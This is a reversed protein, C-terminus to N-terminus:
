SRVKVGIGLKRLQEENDDFASRARRIFRGMWKDLQRMAERRNQSAVISKGELHQQVQMAEVLDKLQERRITFRELDIYQGELALMVDPYQVVEDYFHVMQRVLANRRDRMRLHLRMKVYLARNDRLATRVLRRDDGFYRRIEDYLAKVRATAAVKAGLRVEQETELESAADILQRVVAFQEEKYGVTQLAEALEPDAQVIAIAGEATALREPTNQQNYYKNMIIDQKIQFGLGPEWLIHPISPPM